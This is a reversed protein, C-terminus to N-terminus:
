ELFGFINEPLQSGPAGPAYYAKLVRNKFAMLRTIVFILTLGFTPRMGWGVVEFKGARIHILLVKLKNSRIRIPLMQEPDTHYLRNAFETSIENLSLNYSSYCFEQEEDEMIMCWRTQMWATDEQLFGAEDMYTRNVRIAHPLQDLDDIHIPKVSSMQTNRAKRSRTLVM